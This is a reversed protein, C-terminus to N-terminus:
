DAANEMLIKKGSKEELKPKAIETEFRNKGSKKAIYLKQDTIRIFENLSEGRFQSIGGSLTVLIHEHLDAKSIDKLIRESLAYAPSLETDPMIIIFEEGGYRGVYDTKRVTAAIIKSIIKIVKDGTLHGYSDNINKFDDIDAIILSIPSNQQEARETETKLIKLSAEHNYLGTMSDKQNIEKLISNKKYLLKRNTFVNIKAKWLINSMIWAAINSGAANLKIVLSTDADSVYLPLLIIFCLYTASFLIASGLPHMYVFAASFFVFLLYMHILDTEIQMYLATYAGFMICLALFLYQVSQAFILNVTKIKVKILWIFIILVACIILFRLIVAGIHFINEEITYLYCEFIFLFTSIIALRFFNDKAVARKFENKYEKEIFFIDKSWLSGFISKLKQM